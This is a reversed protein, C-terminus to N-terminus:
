KYGFYILVAVLALIALVTFSIYLQVKGQQSKRAAVALQGILWGIRNVLGDVIKTDFWGVIGSLTSVRDEEAALEKAAGDITADVVKHDVWNAASAVSIQNDTSGVFIRALLNVMGDVIKKDFAAFLRTAGLFLKSIYKEYFIDIFFHHFSLSGQWDRTDDMGPKAKRYFLYGLALGGFAAILSFLIAQSHSDSPQSGRLILTGLDPTQLSEILPIHAHSEFGTQLPAFVWALSGIALIALPGWMSFPVDKIKAFHREAQDMQLNMRNEGGFILLAHRAMYLATLFAALFGAISPIWAFWGLTQHIEPRKAFDLTAALIGDKSIFGSFFPLGVLAALFILYFAFTRPMRKRLGGMWRIDQPDFHADIGEHALNHQLQHLSHIVAGAALFLGAKFFAHTVLHLFSWEYHGTGLGM